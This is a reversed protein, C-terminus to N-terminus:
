FLQRRFESPTSGDEEELAKPSLWERRSSSLAGPPLDGLLFDETPDIEPELRDERVPGHLYSSLIRCSPYLGLEEFFGLEDNELLFESGISTEGGPFGGEQKRLPTGENPTGAPNPDPDTEPRAPRRADSGQAM